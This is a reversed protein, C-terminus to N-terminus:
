DDGYLDRYSPEDDDWWDDDEDYGGDDPDDDSDLYGVYDGEDDEEILEDEELDILIEETEDSLSEEMEELEDLSITDEDEGERPPHHALYTLHRM